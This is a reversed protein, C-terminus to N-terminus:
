LKPPASEKTYVSANLIYKPISNIFNKASPSYLVDSRLQDRHTTSANTPVSSLYEIMQNPIKM